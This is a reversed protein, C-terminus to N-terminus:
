LKVPLSIRQEGNRRIIAPLCRDISLLRLDLFLVAQDQNGNLRSRVGDMKVICVLREQKTSCAAPETKGKKQEQPDASLVSGQVPLGAASPPNAGIKCIGSINKRHNM